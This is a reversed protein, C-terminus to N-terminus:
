CWGAEEKTQWCTNGFAHHLKEIVMLGDPQFNFSSYEDDKAVTVQSKAPLRLPGYPAYAARM